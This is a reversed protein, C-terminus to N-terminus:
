ISFKKRIKRDRILLYLKPFVRIIPITECTLITQRLRSKAILKKNNFKYTPRYSTTENLTVVFNRLSAGGLVFGSLYSDSIKYSFNRIFNDLFKGDAALKLKEDFGQLLLADTKKVLVGQHHFDAIQHGINGLVKPITVSYIKGSETFHIVPTTLLSEATLGKILRKAKETSEADLLFDGANLYWVWANKAERLGHNMANYIGGPEKHILRYNSNKAMSELLNQQIPPNSGDVILWEFNQNNQIAISQTTRLFGPLDDKIVTIITLSDQHKLTM